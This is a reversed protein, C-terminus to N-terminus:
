NFEKGKMNWVRRASAEKWLVRYSFSGEFLLTELEYVPYKDSVFIRPFTKPTMLFRSKPHPISSHPHKYNLLPHCRNQPALSRFYVVSSNSPFPTM